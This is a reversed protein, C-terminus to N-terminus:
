PEENDPFTPAKDMVHRGFAAVWFIGACFMMFWFMWSNGNILKEISALGTIAFAMGIYYFFGM